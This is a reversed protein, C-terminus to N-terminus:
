SIESREQYQIRLELQEAELCKRLWAEQERDDSDLVLTLVVWDSSEQQVIDISIQVPTIGAEALFGTIETKVQAKVLECAAQQSQTQTQQSIQEAREQAKRLWRDSLKRNFSGLPSLVSCLFFLSLLIQFVRGLGSKPAVFYCLGATAAALCVGSAWQHVTEM